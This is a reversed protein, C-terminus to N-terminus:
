LGAPLRALLGRAQGGVIDPAPPFNEGLPGLGTERLRSLGTLADM